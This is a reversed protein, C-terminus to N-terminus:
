SMHHWHNGVTTGAMLECGKCSGQGWRVMGLNADSLYCSKIRRHTESVLAPCMSEKAGLLVYSQRLQYFTFFVPYVTPGIFPRCEGQIGTSVSCDQPKTVVPSHLIFLETLYLLRTGFPKCVLQYILILVKDCRRRISEM